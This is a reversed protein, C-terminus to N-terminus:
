TRVGPGRQELVVAQYPKLHLSGPEQALEPYKNLRVRGVPQAFAM